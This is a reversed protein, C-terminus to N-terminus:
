WCETRPPEGQPGQSMGAGDTRRMEFGLKLCSSKLKLM